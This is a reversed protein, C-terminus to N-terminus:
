KIILINNKEAVFAAANKLIKIIESLRMPKAIYDNMGIQLCEDKDQSMANATMAIIYPQDIPMKRIAQTAEFGDMEPMQVDMLIVNFDHKKISELVQIGDNAVNIQYGLKLLIRAILKQNIMNDEAILISLPYDQSFTETLIAAQTEESESNDKQSSFLM